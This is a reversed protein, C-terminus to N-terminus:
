MITHMIEKIDGVFTLPRSNVQAEVECLVTRMEDFDLTTKWLVKRLPTKVSRVLLEWLGSTWPTRETICGFHIRLPLVSKSSSVMTKCSNREPVGSPDDKKSLRFSLNGM